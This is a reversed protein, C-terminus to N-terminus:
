INFNCYVSLVLCIEIGSSGRLKCRWCDHLYLKPRYSLCYFFQLLLLLLLFFFFLFTSSSASTTNLKRQKERWVTRVYECIKVGDDHRDGALKKLQMPDCQGDESTRGDGYNDWFMNGYARISILTHMSGLEIPLTTLRNYSVNLYKLSLLQTISIPLVELQNWHLDLHLISCLHYYSLHSPIAPLETLSCMSFDVKLCDDIRPSHIISNSNNRKNNKSKRQNIIAALEMLNEWEEERMSTGGHSMILRIVKMDIHQMSQLSPFFMKRYVLFSNWSYRPNELTLSTLTSPFFWRRRARVPAAAAAPTSSTSSASAAAAADDNNDHKIRRYRNFPQDFKRGLRLSLLGEHLKIWELNHNFNHGFSLHQLTCPLAITIISACFPDGFELHTLHSSRLHVSLHEVQQYSSPSITLEKLTHSLILTACHDYKNQLSLKTLAPLRSLWSQLSQNYDTFELTTLYPALPLSDTSENFNSLVLTCLSTSLPKILSNIDVSSRWRRCFLSKLQTPWRFQQLSHNYEYGFTITDLEDPLLIYQLCDQKKAWPVDFVKLEKCSVLNLPSSPTACFDLPLSLQELHLCHSLDLGRHFISNYTFHLIKISSPICLSDCGGGFTLETLETFSSFQYPHPAPSQLPQQGVRFSAGTINPAYLCTLSTPLQMTITMGTDALAFPTYRSPLHLSVLETMHTLQLPQDFDSDYPFRLATLSYPPM